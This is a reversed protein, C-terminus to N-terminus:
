ALPAFKKRVFIFDSIIVWICFASQIFNLLMFGWKAAILLKVNWFLDFLFVGADSIM